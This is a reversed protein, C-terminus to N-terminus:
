EVFADLKLLGRKESAYTRASSFVYEEANEVIMALVPNNHIYELKQMMFENSQLVKAHSGDQWVKYKKARKTKSAAFEFKDLLWERRSENIETITKIIEKSTYKKFDRVIASLDFGPKAAIILHLHSPMICYAYIM